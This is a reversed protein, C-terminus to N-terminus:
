RVLGREKLLDAYVQLEEATGRIKAGLYWGNKDRSLCLDDYGRAAEEINPKDLGAAARCGPCTAEEPNGALKLPVSGYLTRKCGVGGWQLKYHTVRRGSLHRQCNKCTVMEENRTVRAKTNEAPFFAGCQPISHENGYHVKRRSNM